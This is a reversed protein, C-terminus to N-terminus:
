NRRRGERRDHRLEILFRGAFAVAFVVAAWFGMVVAAQGAQLVSTM